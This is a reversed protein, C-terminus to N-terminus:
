PGTADVLEGDGSASAGPEEWREGPEEPHEASPDDALGDAGERRRRRFLYIEGALVLAALVIFPPVWTPLSQVNAAAVSLPVAVQLTTNAQLHGGVADTVVVTIDFSGAVLPTCTLATLNVSVCGAPLDFYEYSRTGTGGTAVLTLNTSQGLSVSAPSASFTSVALYSNVVVSATALAPDGVADIAALHIT